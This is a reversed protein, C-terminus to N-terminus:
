GMPQPPEYGEVEDNEQGPHSSGQDQKNAVQGSEPEATKQLPAERGKHLGLINSINWTKLKLKLKLTDLSRLRDNIDIDEQTGKRIGAALMVAKKAEKVAEKAQKIKDKEKNLVAERAAKQEESAKDLYSNWEKHKDKLEEVLAFREAVKKEQYGTAYALYAPISERLQEKRHDLEVAKDKLKQELEPLRPDTQEGAKAKKVLKELEFFDFILKEMEPRQSIWSDPSEQLLYIDDLALSIEEDVKDLDKEIEAAENKLKDNHIKMEGQKKEMVADIQGTVSNEIGELTEKKNKLEKRKEELVKKKGPLDLNIAERKREASQARTSAKLRSNVSSERMAQRQQRIWTRRKMEVDASTYLRGKADRKSRKKRNKVNKAANKVGKVAKKLGRWCSALSINKKGSSGVSSIDSVSSAPSPSTSVGPSDM